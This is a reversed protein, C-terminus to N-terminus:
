DIKQGFTMKRGTLQRYSGPTLSLYDKLSILQDSGALPFFVEDPKIGPLKKPLDTSARVLQDICLFALVLFLIKRM